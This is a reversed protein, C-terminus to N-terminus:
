SEPSSEGSSSKQQQSIAPPDATTLLYLSLVRAGSLRLAPGNKKVVADRVFAHEEETLPKSAPDHLEELDSYQHWLDAIEDRHLLGIEEVTALKPPDARFKEDDDLLADALVYLARAIEYLGETAITEELGRARMAAVARAELDIRRDTGVLTMLATLDLRPITIPVFVRKGALAAVFRSAKAAPASSPAHAMAAGLKTM